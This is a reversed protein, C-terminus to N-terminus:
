KFFFSNNINIELVTLKAHHLNFVYQYITPLATVMFRGSLGPNTTVDISAVKISLDDSWSSFQEWQSELHKCAPCWPAYFEVMWEGKLMETWSNEDLKILKSSLALTQNVSVFLFFLFLKLKDRKLGKGTVFFM